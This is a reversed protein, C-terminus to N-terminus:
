QHSIIVSEISMPLHHIENHSFGAKTFMTSYESFTYADGAPTTALMVISFWASEPSIRDENPVFELTVVCGDDKLIGKIKKLLIECTSHDFHHLFNPLLVVDYERGLDVDFVSGAITHYRSNIGEAMAREQAVPLVNAWDNAIVEAEPNRKALEIGFLGHGAAIDLIKCPGTKELTIKEAIWGAPGGMMPAMSRAFDVWAPHEPEITGEIGVATGGQQVAQTFRQFGTLMPSSLLFPVMSGMYAPSHKVLFMNADPTLQYEGKEKMLFGLMVLYDLLIRMGRESTQCAQGLASVTRNEKALATFVDLEIATKLVATNQFANITQFFLQPSTPATSKQESM